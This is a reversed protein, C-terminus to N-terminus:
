QSGDEDIVPLEGTRAEPAFGNSDADLMAAAENLQQSEEATLGGVGQEQGCAALLALTAIGMVIRM